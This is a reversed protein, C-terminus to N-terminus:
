VMYDYASPRDAWLESETRLQFFRPQNNNPLTDLEKLAVGIRATSTEITSHVKQIQALALRLVWPAHIIQANAIPQLLVTAAMLNDYNKRTNVYNSSSIKINVPFKKRLRYRFYTLLAVFPLFMIHMFLFIGVKGFWEKVKGLLMSARLVLDVSHRSTTMFDDLQISTYM